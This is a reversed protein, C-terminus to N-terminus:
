RPLPVDVSLPSCFSLATGSVTQLLLGNKFDAYLASSACITYNLVVVVGRTLLTAIRLSHFSTGLQIDKRRIEAQATKLVSALNHILVNRQKAWVKGNVNMKELQAELQAVRELAFETLKYYCLKTSYSKNTPRRSQLRFTSLNPGVYRRFLKSLRDELSAREKEAAKAVTDIDGYAFDTGNDHAGIPPSQPHPPSARHQSNEM